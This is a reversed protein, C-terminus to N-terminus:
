LIKCKCILFKEIERNCWLVFNETEQLKSKNWFSCFCNIEVGYCLNRRAVDMLMDEVSEDVVYYYSLWRLWWAWQCRSIVRFSVDLERRMCDHNSLRQISGAVTRLCSSRCSRLYTCGEEQVVHVLMASRRTGNCDADSESLRLDGLWEEM